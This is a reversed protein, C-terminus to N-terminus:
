IEKSAYLNNRLIYKFVPKVLDKEASQGSSLQCRVASSSVDNRRWDADQLLHVTAGDQDLDNLLDAGVVTGPRPVVLFDVMRVLQAYSKWTCLSSLRDAGILFSMSVDPSSAKLATVVDITYSRSFEPQNQIELVRVNKQHLALEGIMLTVMAYRHDFSAHASRDYRNDGAPLIWLEDCLDRLLVQQIVDAHARTPPDFNGGFLVVHM